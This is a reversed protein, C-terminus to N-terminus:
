NSGDSCETGTWDACFVIEGTCTGGVHQTCNGDGDCCLAEEVGNPSGASCYGQDCADNLAVYSAVQSSLPDIIEGHEVYYPTEGGTCAGSGKLTSVGSAANYCVDARLVPANPGTYDCAGQVSTCLYRYNTAQSDSAGVLLGMGVAAALFGQVVKSRLEM